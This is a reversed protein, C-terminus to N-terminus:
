SRMIRSGGVAEGRAKGNRIALLSDEVAGLVHELEKQTHMLTPLFATYFLVGNHAMERRFKAAVDPDHFMLKPICGGKFSALNDDIEHRLLDHVHSSLYAAMGCIQRQEYPGMRDLVAGAAALSLTEGFHTGSYFAYPAGEAGTVFKDMLEASGVLATIPMGNGLAKGLCLLDPHLRYSSAVTAGPYRFATVMEDFIVLTGSRHCIDIIRGLCEPPVMDPELILCAATKLILNGEIAKIVNQGDTFDDRIKFVANLPICGDGRPSDAVTWDHWGHYGGYLKVVPLRGTAVRALRVAASTVDSGNKGFVVKHDGFPHDPFLRHILANAVITEDHFALPFAIGLDLQREIAERVYPDCYGLITTGLAATMDIFENGDVDFVRSGQSHTLFLPADRGWAVHSKSYTSAGYPQRALAVPLRATSIAFSDAKLEATRQTNYRENRGLLSRDQPEPAVALVDAFSAGPGKGAVLLRTAILSCLDYDAAHDLVWRHVAMGPLQCPLIAVSFENRRHVIYQLVTDRDSPDTALLHARELAPLTVCQVDLGDPWMPPDVNSAYDSGTLERLYVVQKLVEPDIFPCDGTVRVIIDLQHLKACQYLRDLVDDPSGRFIGLSSYRGELYEVIENDEQNTSTAVYVPFDTKGCAEITWDLARRQPNEKPLKMLVKGPLRTSGMRAQIIIGTKM